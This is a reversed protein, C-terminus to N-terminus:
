AVSMQHAADDNANPLRITVKTGVAPESTIEFTGHLLEIFSKAIPLGLGTGKTNNTFINRVQGFPELAVRIDAESMGIGNDEVSLEFGDRYPRAGITVRGGPATYNVANIAINILVQFLKGRDTQISDPIARDIRTAIEIDKAKAQERVLIITKSIIEHLSATGITVEVKQRELMSLDLLANVLGLLHQGSDNIDRSYNLYTDSVPGFMQAKIIESFGIIANLPTRMEHSMQALIKSKADNADNAREAEIHKLKVEDALDLRSQEIASLSQRLLRLPVRCFILYLALGLGSAGLFILGTELLLPRASISIEFFGIVKGRGLIAERFSVAPFAQDLGRQLVLTEDGHNLVSIRVNFRGDPDGIAVLEPLRPSSYRWTDGQINAFVAIQNTIVHSRFAMDSKVRDYGVYFFLGPLAFAILLATGAALRNLLREAPIPQSSLPM